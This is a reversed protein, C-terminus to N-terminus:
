NVYIVPYEASVKYKGDVLFKFEDGEKMRVIGHFRGYLESYCLIHQVIWPPNTFNGILAVQEKREGNWYV